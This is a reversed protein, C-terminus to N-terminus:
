RQNREAGPHECSGDVICVGRRPAVPRGGVAWNAARGTDISSTSSFPPLPASLTPHHGGVQDAPCPGPVALREALQGLRVTSLQLHVAVPHETGQLVGLVGELVRQQGGPLAESSELSAGRDAGPEVPDGGVPAEVRTPRRASARGPLPVHGLNFRGFRGPETFQYPELWKGVGEELPRDVHREAGLGAVLLGFGDGQGEHACQLYQRGALEGHEDQAVDEPEVGALHGVHQVRGDLRDVAGEFPGAGAQLAAQRWGARRM